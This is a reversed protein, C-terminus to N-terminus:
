RKTSSLISTFCSAYATSAATVKKNLQPYQYLLQFSSHICSNGKQQASSVPSVAPILQQHATVKKNLQPYQHLLQFSSNINGDIDDLKALTEETEAKAQM